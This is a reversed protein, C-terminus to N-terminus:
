KAAEVYLTVRGTGEAGSRAPETTSLDYALFYVVDVVTYSAWDGPGQLALFIREGARPIFRIKALPAKAVTEKKTVDYLELYAEDERETAM